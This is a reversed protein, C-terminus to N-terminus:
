TIKKRKGEYLIKITLKKWIDGVIDFFPFFLSVFSVENSSETNIFTKVSCFLHSNIIRKQESLVQSIISPPPAVNFYPQKISITEGMFNAISSVISASLINGIELLASEEMEELKSIKRGFVTGLLVKASKQPLLHLIRGKKEPGIESSIALMPEKSEEDLFVLKEPMRVWVQPLDIRIKQNLFKSLSAALHGAAFCYVEKLTDAYIETKATM